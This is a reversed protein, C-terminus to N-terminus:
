TIIFEYLLEYVSLTVWKRMKDWEGQEIWNRIDTGHIQIRELEELVPQKHHAFITKVHENGSMVADFQIMDTIYAYWDEDESFDPIGVIEIRSLDIGRDNLSMEIIEKRQLFSFPNREDQKNSSGVGIIINQYGTDFIQNIVDLHGIHVPQFRWIYLCTSMYTIFFLFQYALSLERRRNIFVLIM